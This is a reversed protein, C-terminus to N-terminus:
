KFLQDLMPDKKAGLQIARQYWLKAEEKRKPDTKAIHVAANYATEASTPDLKFSKRFQQEAADNWELYSCIIGLYRQITPDKPNKASAKSAVGLAQYYKEQHIYCFTLALLLDLNEQDQILAKELVPIAKLDNGSAALIMGLRSLAKQNTPDQKLIKEYYWTAAQNKGSEEALAASTLMKQIKVQDVKIQTAPAIAVVGPKQTKLKRLEQETQNLRALLQNNERKLSMFQPTKAIIAPEPLDAAVTVHGPNEAMKKNLAELEKDKEVVKSNMAVLEDTLMVIKKDYEDNSKKLKALESFIERNKDKLAMSNKGIDVKLKLNEDELKTLQNILKKYDAQSKLLGMESKKADKLLKDNESQLKQNKEHVLEVKGEAAILQKALSTFEDKKAEMEKCKKSLINFDKKLKDYEQKQKLITEDQKKTITDAIFAKKNLMQLDTLLKERNEDIGALTKELTASKKTTTSLTEELQKVQKNKEAMKLNITELSKLLLENDNSLKKVVVESDSTADLRTQKIDARLKAVTDDAQKLKEQATQLKQALNEKEKKTQHITEELVVIKKDEQKMGQQKIEGTKEIMKIKYVLDNKKGALLAYKQKETELMSILNGRDKKLTEIQLLAKDLSAKDVAKVTAQGGEKLTKNQEELLACRNTLVVKEKLLQEVQDSAKVSRAAERRAAELSSYTIDLQGKTEKLEKEMTTLRSKLLLNEKDTESETFKINKKAFESKLEEVKGKCIKIRYNILAANWKPYKAKITEFHSLSEKFLTMAERMQGNKHSKEGREYYEFGQLWIKRADKKAEDSIQAPLQVALLMYFIFLAPFFRRWYM